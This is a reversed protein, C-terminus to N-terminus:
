SPARQNNNNETTYAFPQFIDFMAFSCVDGFISINVATTPPFAHLMSSASVNVFLVLTLEDALPYLIFELLPLPHEFVACYVRASEHLVLRNASACELKGVSVLLVYTGVQSQELNHM